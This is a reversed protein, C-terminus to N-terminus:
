IELMRILLPQGVLLKKQQMIKKAQLVKKNSTLHTTFVISAKKGSAPTQHVFELSIDCSAFAACLKELVGPKDHAKIRIYYAFERENDLKKFPKLDSFVLKSRHRLRNQAAAVVDSVVASATPMEGAGAGYYMLDGACDGNVMVANYAGGVNSLPHSQKILMPFTGLFIQNNSKSEAMSILKIVYGNSKAWSFDEPKLARIGESQILNFPVHKSFALSGLLSLKHSADIGDVDFTPDAEAYGLDQAEKLVDAFESGKSSMESLIYNCTGNFIGLLSNINNALLGEELSSVIPIGGCCSAEFFLSESTDKQFIQNPKTALLYKNATVVKVGNKLFKLMANKPFDGGIAEVVIDFDEKIFENIDNTYDSKKLGLERLRHSRRSFVKTCTIEDGLLKKFYLSKNKLIKIVGGGVTGLGMIGVKISMFNV